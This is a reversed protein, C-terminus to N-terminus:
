ILVDKCHADKALFLFFAECSGIELGINTYFLLDALEATGANRFALIPWM